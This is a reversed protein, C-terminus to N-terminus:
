PESDLEAWAEELLRLKQKLARKEEVLANNAELLAVVRPDEGVLRFIFGVNAADTQGFIALLEYGDAKMADLAAPLHSPNITLGRAYAYHTGKMLTGFRYDALRELASLDEGAHAALVREIEHALGENVLAKSGAAHRLEASLAPNDQKQRHEQGYYVFQDRCRELMRVLGVRQGDEPRKDVPM